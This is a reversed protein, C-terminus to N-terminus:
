SWMSSMENEMGGSTAIWYLTSVAFQCPHQFPTHTHTISSCHLHPASLDGETWDPAVSDIRWTYVSISYQTWVCAYNFVEMNAIWVNLHMSSKNRKCCIEKQMCFIISFRSVKLESIISSFPSSNFEMWFHVFLTFKFVPVTVSFLLPRLSLCSYSFTWGFSKQLCPAHPPFVDQM